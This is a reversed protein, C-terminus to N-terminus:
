TALFSAFSRGKVAENPPTVPNVLGRILNGALTAWLSTEALLNAGPGPLRICSIVTALLTLCKIASGTIEFKPVRCDPAFFLSVEDVILITEEHNLSDDDVALVDLVAQNFHPRKGTILVAGLADEQKSLSRNYEFFV